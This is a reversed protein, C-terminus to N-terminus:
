KNVSINAEKTQDIYEATHPIDSIISIALSKGVTIGKAFCRAEDATGFQYAGFISGDTNEIFVSHDISPKDMGNDYRRKIYKIKM